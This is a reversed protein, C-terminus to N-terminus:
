EREYLINSNKLKPSALDQLNWVTEDFGHNEPLTVCGICNQETSVGVYSSIDYLNTAVVKEGTADIQEVYGFLNEFHFGGNGQIMGTVEAVIASATYASYGHFHDHIKNVTVRSFINKLTVKENMASVVGFAAFSINQGYCREPDLTVSLHLACDKVVLLNDSRVLGVFGGVDFAHGSGNETFVAVDVSLRSLEVSSEGTAFLCGILGGLELSSVPSHDKEFASTVKANSVTIGSIQAASDAQLIGILVGAVIMNSSNTNTLGVTAGNVNLNKITPNLCTGFLGNAYYTLEPGSLTATYHAGTTTKLNLVSHGKGDFSGSFHNVGNGIPIWELNALDIDVGLTVYKRAYSEGDNVSKAFFAFEAANQIEYPAAESGNGVTFSTAVTGDWTSVKSENDSSSDGAGDNTTDGNNTTDGDNPAPPADNCAFISFLMVFVLLLSFLKRM